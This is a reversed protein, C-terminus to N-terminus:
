NKKSEMEKIEKILFANQDVFINLNTLVINAESNNKATNTSSETFHTLEAKENRKNRISEFKEVSSLPM